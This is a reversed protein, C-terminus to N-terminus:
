IIRDVEYLYVETQPINKFAVGQLMEVPVMADLWRMSYPLWGHVRYAPCSTFWCQSRISLCSFGLQKEPLYHRTLIGIDLATGCHKCKALLDFPTFSVQLQKLEKTVAWLPGATDGYQRCEGATDMSTACSRAAIRLRKRRTARAFMVDSIPAGNEDTWFEGDIGGDEDLYQDRDESWVGDEDSCTEMSEESTDAADSSEVEDRCTGPDQESTDAEDGSEVERWKATRSGCPYFRPEKIDWLRGRKRHVADFSHQALVCDYFHFGRARLDFALAANIKWLPAWCDFDHCTCRQKSPGLKRLLMRLRVARAVAKRRAQERRRISRRKQAESQKVGQERRHMWHMEDLQASQAKSLRGSRIKSRVNRALRHEAHRTPSQPTHQLLPWRGLEEVEAMAPEMESDRSEIKLAELEELVVPPLVDATKMKSIKHALLRERERKPDESPAHEMPYRGFEKVEEMLKQVRQSAAPQQVGSSQSVSPSTSAPAASSPRKLIPESATLPSEDSRLARVYTVMEARSACKQAEVLDESAQGKTRRCPGYVTAHVGIEPMRPLQVRWTGNKASAISGLSAPPRVFGKPPM